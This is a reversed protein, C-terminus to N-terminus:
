PSAVSQIVHIKTKAVAVPGTYPGAWSRDLQYRPMVTTSWEAGLNFVRTAKGESGLRKRSTIRLYLSLKVKRYM